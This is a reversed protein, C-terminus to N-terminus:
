REGPRPGGGPPFPPRKERFQALQTKQEATLLKQIAAETGLRILELETMSQAKDRLIPRAQTETYNGGEIMMRLQDDAARVKALYEKSAERSAFEMARIQEKQTDTLNLQDFIYPGFGGRRDGPPPPPPPAFEGNKGQAQRSANDEATQAFIFTLSGLLIALAVPIFINLHKRM